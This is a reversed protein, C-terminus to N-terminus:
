SEEEEARLAAYYEDHDAPGEVTVPTFPTTAEEPLFGHQRLFDQRATQGWAHFATALAESSLRPRQAYCRQQYRLLGLHLELEEVGSLDYISRLTSTDPANANGAWACYAQTLADEANAVMIRLAHRQVLDDASGAHPPETQGTRKLMVDYLDQGEFRIAEFRTRLHKRIQGPTACAAEWLQYLSSADRAVEICRRRQVEGMGLAEWHPVQEEAFHMLGRRMLSVQHLCADVLQEFYAIRTPARTSLTMSHAADLSWGYLPTGDRAPGGKPETHRDDSSYADAHQHSRLSCSTAM